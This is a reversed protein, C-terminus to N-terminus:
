QSVILTVVKGPGVAAGPGPDHSVVQGVPVDGQKVYFISVSAGTNEVFGIADDLSQGALDPLAAAPGAAPQDAGQEPNVLVNQSTDRAAQAQPGQQEQFAPSTDERGVSYLLMVLLILLGVVGIALIGNMNWTRPQDVEPLPDLRPEEVHGVPFYPMLQGPDLGLYGAYSRLFGRAYVPAPLKTFDERELAELYERRIRTVREADEFTVNKSLRARRLTEGLQSSVTAEELQMPHWYVFGCGLGTLGKGM